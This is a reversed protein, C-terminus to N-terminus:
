PKTKIILDLVAQATEKTPNDYYRGYTSDEDYCIVRNINLPCGACEEDFPPNFLECYPCEAKMKDLEPFKDITGEDSGNNEVIYTWKKVCLEYAEHITM